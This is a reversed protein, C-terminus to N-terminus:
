ATPTIADFVMERGWSDRYEGYAYEWVQNLEWARLSDDHLKTLGPMGVMVLILAEKSFVGGKADNSSDKTINNDRFLPVGAISKYVFGKEIVEQSIGTPIPYTGAPALDKALPHLQHTHFVGYIPGPAPETDGSIASEAAAVYEWTLATGASGLATSFGDLMTIGDQDLKRALAEGMLKGAIAPIDDRVTRILHDLLIVQLGIESPTITQLSDSLMQGQNMDVGRTLAGASVTGYKPIRYDAGGHPGLTVNKVLQKMVPKNEVTYRSEALMPVVINDINATTNVGTQAM